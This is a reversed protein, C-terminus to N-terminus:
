ATEKAQILASMEKFAPHAADRLWEFIASETEAVAVGAYRLRELAFGYHDRQRSCTADSMVFCTWGDRQLELATQLVCIHTEMGAIVVQRRQSETLAQRFEPVAACSFRTKDIRPAAEPLMRALEPLLPGLGQPYQQTVLVPVQLATAARLLLQANRQLRSLVKAPMARALREQIDLLVLCGQAADCLARNSEHTM